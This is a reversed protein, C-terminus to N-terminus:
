GYLFRQTAIYWYVLGDTAFTSKYWYDLPDWVTNKDGLDNKSPVIMRLVATRLDLLWDSCHVYKLLETYSAFMAEAFTQTSCIAESCYDMMAETCCWEVGNTNYSGIYTLEYTMDISKNSDAYPEIYHKRLILEVLESERMNDDIDIDINYQFVDLICDGGFVHNMFQAYQKATYRSYSYGRLYGRALM